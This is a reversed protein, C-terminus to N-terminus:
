IALSWGNIWLRIPFMWMKYKINISRLITIYEEPKTWWSYIAKQADEVLMLYCFLFSVLTSYLFLLLALGGLYISIQLQTQLPQKMTLCLRNYISARLLCVFLFVWCFSKKFSAIFTETNAIFHNWTAFDLSKLM